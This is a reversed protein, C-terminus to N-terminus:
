PLKGTLCYDDRMLEYNLLSAKAEENRLRDSLESMVGQNYSASTGHNTM